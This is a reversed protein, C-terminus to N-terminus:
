NYLILQSNGEYQPDTQYSAEMIGWMKRRGTSSGVMNSLDDLPTTSEELLSFCLPILKIIAYM